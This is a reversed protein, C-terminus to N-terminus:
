SFEFHRRLRITRVLLLLESRKRRTPIAIIVTSTIQATAFSFTLINQLSHLREFKSKSSSSLFIPVYTAAHVSSTYVVFYVKIRTLLSTFCDYFINCSWLQCRALKDDRRCADTPPELRGCGECSKASSKEGPSHGPSVTICGFYLCLVVFFLM